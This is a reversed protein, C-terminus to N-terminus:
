LHPRRLMTVVVHYLPVCTLRVPISEYVAQVHAWEDRLRIRIRESCSWSYLQDGQGFATGSFPNKTKVQLICHPRTTRTRSVYSQVCDELEKKMSPYASALRSKWVSPAPVALPLSHIPICGLPDRLVFTDWHQLDINQPETVAQICSWAHPPILHMNKTYRPHSMLFRHFPVHMVAHSGVLGSDSLDLNPDIAQYKFYSASVQSTLAGAQLWDQTTINRSWSKWQVRGNDPLPYVFIGHAAFVTGYSMEGLWHWCRQYPDMRVYLLPHAYEALLRILDQWASHFVDPQSSTINRLEALRLAHCPSFPTTIPPGWSAHVRPCPTCTLRHGDKPRIWDAQQCEVSCYKVQRCQSCRRTGENIKCVPCAVDILM